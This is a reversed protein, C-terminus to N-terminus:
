QYATPDVNRVPVRWRFVHVKGVQNTLFDRRRAANAIARARAATREELIGLEFEISAPVVSNSMMYYGIEGPAVTTSYRVDAGKAIDNTIWIGNTDFARVKFHVVNDLIRNMNTTIDNFADSQFKYFLWAPSLGFVSKSEYRYLTGIGNDPTSVHYGYGVWTRNEETLYYLDQFLNTRRAVPTNAELQQKLTEYLPIQVFFNVGTIVQSPKIQLAERTIMETVARGGELVDVQTMGLTYARQTQSFMAVLGLIIVSLLAVVVLVEILTFAQRLRNASTALKM